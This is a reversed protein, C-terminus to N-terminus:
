AAVEARMGLVACLARIVSQPDAGDTVEQQAWGLADLLAPKAADAMVYDLWPRLVLVPDADFPHELVLPLGWWCAGCLNNVKLEDGVVVVRLLERVLPSVIAEAPFCRALLEDRAGPLRMVAEVILLEPYVSPSTAASRVVEVSDIGVVDGCISCLAGSGPQPEVAMIDRPIM